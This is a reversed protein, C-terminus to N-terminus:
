PTVSPARRRVEDLITALAASRDRLVLGASIRVTEIGRDKLFEDRREDHRVADPTSHVAGDVEVALRAAECHLGPIYPEVPHQRRFTYGGLQRGKLAAWLALEPPSLAQRMRRARKLNITQLRV